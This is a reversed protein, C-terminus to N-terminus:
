AGFLAAYHTKLEESQAEVTPPDSKMLKIASLPEM